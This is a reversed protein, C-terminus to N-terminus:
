HASLYQAGFLIGRKEGEESGNYDKDELEISIAGKYHNTMLIHFVQRWNTEGHGPITYRWAAGGFAPSEKFTAPQEHGYEYLDDALVETDKGHVHGVRPAFDKLFRLPSIGMRILHSPDYNIGIAKSPCEKFTARYGEPTCCLAGPGPWGEIVLRGGAKELAPSLANLSEVMYGFNEKRPKSADEPLMVCFFNRAGAACAKAVYEANKAVSEERKGKDASMMPQWELLDVSGVILGGAERVIAIEEVNRGLDIVGLENERAWAVLKPLDKQWDSGGRRFGIPFNGTRTTLM